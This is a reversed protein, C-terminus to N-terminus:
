SDLSVLNSNFNMFSCESMNINVHVRRAIYKNICM